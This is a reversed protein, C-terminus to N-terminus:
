PLPFSQSKSTACQRTLQSPHFKGLMRIVSKKSSAAASRRSAASMPQSLAQPHHHHHHSRRCCSVTVPTLGVVAPLLLQHSLDAQQGVAQQHSTSYSPLHTLSMQHQPLPRHKPVAQKLPATSDQTAAAAKIQRQILSEHYSLPSHIQQHQHQQQRQPVSSEPSENRSSVSQLQHSHSQQVMLHHPQGGNAFCTCNCCHNNSPVITIKPNSASWFLGFTTPWIHKSFSSKPQANLRENGIASSPRQAMLDAMLSVDHNLAKPHNNHPQHSSVSPSRSGNSMPCISMSSVLLQQNNLLPARAAAASHGVPEPEITYRHQQQKQRHHNHDCCNFSNSSQAQLLTAASTAQKSIASNMKSSRRLEIAILIYLVTVIIMPVIFFFIASVVFM